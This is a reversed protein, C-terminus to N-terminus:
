LYEAVQETAKWGQQRVQSLIQEVLRLAEGREGRAREAEALTLQAGAVDDPNGDKRAAVLAMEAYRLAEEYNDRKRMLESLDDYILYLDRQFNPTDPQIRNLAEQLWALAQDLEGMGLACNGLKRLHYIEGDSDGLQRATTLGELLLPRIEGWRGRLDLHALASTLRLTAWMQYDERQLQRALALLRTAVELVKEYNILNSWAASLFDLAYLEAENENQSLALAAVEEIRAIAGQYDGQNFRQMGQSILDALQQDSM